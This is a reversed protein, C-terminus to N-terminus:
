VHTFFIRQILTTYYSSLTESVSISLSSQWYGHSYENMHGRTRDISDDRTRFLQFSTATDAGREFSMTRRIQSLWHKCANRSYIVNKVLAVIDVTDRKRFIALWNLVEVTLLGERKSSMSGMWMSM